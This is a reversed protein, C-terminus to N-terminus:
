ALGVLGVLVLAYGGAQLEIPGADNGGRGGPAAAFPLVATITVLAVAPLAVGRVRRAVEGGRCQPIALAAVAMGIGFATSLGFYYLVQTSIEVFTPTPPSAGAM